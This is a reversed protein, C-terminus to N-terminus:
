IFPRIHSADQVSHGLHGAGPIKALYPAATIYGEHLREMSLWDVEHGVGRLTNNVAHGSFNAAAEDHTDQLPNSTRNTFDVTVVDGAVIKTTLTLTVTNSDIAVASPRQTTGGIDVSWAARAPTSGEDLPESYALIIDGDATSNAAILTPPANEIPGPEPIADGAKKYRIQCGAVSENNPLTFLYARTGDGYVDVGVNQPADLTYEVLGLSVM